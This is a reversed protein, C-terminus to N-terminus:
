NLGIIVDDYFVFGEKNCFDESQKAVFEDLSTFTHKKAIPTGITNSIQVVEDEPLFRTTEINRVALLYLAREQGYDVIIQNKLYIIEFIYTHHEKINDYLQIYQEQIMDKAVAIQETKFSGTTTIIFDGKYKSIAIMSGDIKEAVTITKVKKLLAEVKEKTTSKAGDLNHFKDFPYSVIELTNKDLVKGRCQVALNHLGTTYITDNYKLLMLTEHYAVKITSLVAEFVSLLEVASLQSLSDDIMKDLNEINLSELYAILEQRLKDNLSTIYKLSGKDTTWHNTYREGLISELLRLTAVIYEAGKRNTM